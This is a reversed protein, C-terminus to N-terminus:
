GSLGSWALDTLLRTLEERPMTSAGTRSTTELWDDAAARVMGVVGHAWVHARRSNQTLLELQESLHEAVRTSVTRSPDGAGARDLLPATVVFRYIEPEDEVLALYADIAAGVAARGPGLGTEAPSPVEALAEAEDIDRLINEAVRETVAAYLGARDTFHRYFVTKSTAAAAAIGDM